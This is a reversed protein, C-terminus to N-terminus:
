VPATKPLNQAHGVGCVENGLRFSLVDQENERIGVSRWAALSIVPACLFGDCCSSISASEVGDAICVGSLKDFRLPLDGGAPNSGGGVGVGVLWGHFVDFCYEGEDDQDGHEDGADPHVVVQGSEIRDFGSHM